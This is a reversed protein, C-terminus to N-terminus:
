SKPNPFSDKLELLIHQEPNYCLRFSICSYANHEFLTVHQVNLIEADHLKLFKLPRFCREVGVIQYVPVNWSNAECSDSM